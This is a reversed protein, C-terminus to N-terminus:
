QPMVLMSAQQAAGEGLEPVTSELRNSPTGAQNTHKLLLLKPFHKKKAHQHPLM